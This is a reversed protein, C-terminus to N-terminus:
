KSGKKSNYDWQKDDKKTWADILDSESITNSDEGLTIEIELEDPSTAPGEPFLGSDFTSVLKFKARKWDIKFEKIPGDINEKDKYEWKDGKKGKLEFEVIQDAVEVGALTVVASGVPELNDMSFGQPIDLKGDVHIDSKDWSVKAKQVPSVVTITFTCTAQNGAEDTATCNVVTEGLALTSGSTPNCVIAIDVADSVDDTATVEFEVVAETEGPNVYVTFDDPCTIVPDITDQVIVTRIVQTAANGSSDIADYTVVYTGCTTTDVTDGGIVLTVEPDSDDSVTAGLETYSDVGCELTMIAPGNLTIVPPTTDAEVEFTLTDSAGATEAERWLSFEPDWYLAYANAVAEIKYQGPWESPIQVTYTLSITTDVNVEASDADIDEENHVDTKPTDGGRNLRLVTYVQAKYKDEPTGSSDAFYAKASAVIRCAVKITEGVTFVQGDAPSDNIQIELLTVSTEYASQGQVASVIFLAVFLSVTLRKM